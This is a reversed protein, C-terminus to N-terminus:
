IAVDEGGLIEDVRERRIYSSWDFLSPDAYMIQERKVKRREGQMLVRIEEKSVEM